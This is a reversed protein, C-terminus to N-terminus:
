EIHETGCLIIRHEGLEAAPRDAGAGELGHPPQQEGRLM